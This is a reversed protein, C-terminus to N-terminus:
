ACDELERRRLEAVIADKQYANYTKVAQAYTKDLTAADAHRLWTEFRKARGKHVPRDSHKRPYAM